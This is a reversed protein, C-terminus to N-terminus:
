PANVMDPPEILSLLATRPPPTLLSLLPVNVMDPPVILPFLAVSSAPPTSLLPVNLREPVGFIVPFLLLASGLLTKMLLLLQIVITPSNSDSADTPTFKYIGLVDKVLPQFVWIFPFVCLLLITMGPGAEPIMEEIGFAGAAVLCYLMFVIGSVKIDHKKLGAVGQLQPTNPESM